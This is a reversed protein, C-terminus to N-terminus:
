DQRRVAFQFIDENPEVGLGAGTPVLYAGNACGMDGSAHGLNRDFISHQYEHYPVNQLTSAAQLSAAMFIGVSISAHPIVKMHFIQALRGIGIFETIGTHGM